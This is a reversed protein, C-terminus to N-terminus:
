VICINFYKLRWLYHLTSTNKETGTFTSYIVLLTNSYLTLKKKIEKNLLGYNKFSMGSIKKQYLWVEFKKHITLILFFRRWKSVDIAM